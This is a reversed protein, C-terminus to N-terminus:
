YIYDTVEWGLQPTHDLYILTCTLVLLQTRGPWPRVLPPRPEGTADRNLTARWVGGHASLDRGRLFM